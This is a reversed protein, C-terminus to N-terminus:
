KSPCSAFEKLRAGVDPATVLAEGILFARFGNSMYRKIDEPSRIGSEAVLTVGAPALPALRLTTDPDVEFTRLNRNNIGLIDAGSDAAIQMELENHVEVLAEMGARKAHTIMKELNAGGLAAVILLVADAGAARAEYVQYPDVLFDKRLVPGGDGRLRDGLANRAKRLDELSGGFGPGDTLVSIAAAGNRMYIVTTKQADLDEKLAGRSPSKRKIEAIIRPAEGSDLAGKLSAVEDMTECAELMKDMSVRKRAETTEVAKRALIDELFAM